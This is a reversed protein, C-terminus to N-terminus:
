GTNQRTIGTLCRSTKKIGKGNQVDWHQTKALSCITVSAISYIFVSVVISAAVNVSSRLSIKCVTDNVLKAMMKCIHIHTRAHRTYHAPNQCILTVVDYNRHTCLQRIDVEVTFNSHSQIRCPCKLIIEDVLKLTCNEKNM